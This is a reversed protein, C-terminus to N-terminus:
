DLLENVAQSGNSSRIYLILLVPVVIAAVRLLKDLVNKREDTERQPEQVVPEGTPIFAPLDGYNGIILVQSLELMEQCLM